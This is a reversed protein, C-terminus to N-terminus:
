YSSFVYVNYTSNDTDYWYDHKYEREVKDWDIFQELHNPIDNFERFREEAFDKFTDWEGLYVEKFSLYKYEFTKEDVVKDIDDHENSLYADFASEEDSKNDHDLWEKYTKLDSM